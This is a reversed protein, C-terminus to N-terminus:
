QSAELAYRSLRGLLAYRTLGIASSMQERLGGTTVSSVIPRTFRVQNIGYGIANTRETVSQTLRMASSKCRGGDSVGLVDLRGLLAYRSTLLGMAPHCKFFIELNSSALPSRLLLTCIIKRSGATSPRRCGGCSNSSGTSISVMKGTTSVTRPSLVPKRWTETTFMSQTWIPSPLGRFSIM